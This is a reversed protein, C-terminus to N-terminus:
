KQFILIIDQGISFAAVLKYGAAAQVTCLENIREPLPKSADYIPLKLTQTNM